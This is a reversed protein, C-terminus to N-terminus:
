AKEVYARLLEWTNRIGDTHTREYGHSAFVGPGILAFRVDNGARLATACDSSYGPYVDVAYSLGNEEALEVLESVFSYDYPGASDKACISVMTEGCALDDGVCGMDCALIESIGDELKMSAGHGEEETFRPFIAPTTLFLLLRVPGSDEM